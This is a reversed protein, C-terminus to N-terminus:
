IMGPTLYWNLQAKGAAPTSDFELCTISGRKLDIFSLSKGTLLFAIFHSLHPEHGVLAMSPENCEKLIELTAKMETQPTLRKDTLLRSHPFNNKLIDATQQARTYPSSIILDLQKTKQHFHSAMKNFKKRGLRTLPRLSDDLLTEAFVEREEAIAHRVLYLKM